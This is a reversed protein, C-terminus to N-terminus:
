ADLSFSRLGATQLAVNWLFAPVCALYRRGLRQPEQLLRYTWQLGTPHLWRPAEHVAGAHFDFAAGVGVMLHCLLKGYHQAMFREQKPSGLGVWLVDPRTEEVFAALEAEEISDLPRYPPTYTGVVHLGPFQKGLRARLRSAIGPAGGYFFHRWGREVSLECMALMFDPGYVRGISARGQLRGLWVLPMGDAVTLFAGNLANRHMPDRLAEVISHADACCIYGHGGSRILADSQRVAERLDVASVGTGLINVRAPLPDADHLTM